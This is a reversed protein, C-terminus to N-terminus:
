QITLTASDSQVISNQSARVTINTQGVGSSTALGFGNVVAVGANSSTWNSFITLLETSGDSFSGTATFQQSSGLPIAPLKPSITLGTLTANTVQLNSLSGGIGSFVATLKVM